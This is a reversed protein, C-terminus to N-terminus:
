WATYGGDVIINQGTVYSSEDSALYVVAGYIENVETKKVLLYKKQFSRLFYRM